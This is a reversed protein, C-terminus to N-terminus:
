SVASFLSSSASKVHVLRGPLFTLWPALGNFLNGSIKSRYLFEGIFIFLPLTMMVSSNTENWLINNLIGLASSSTFFMISIIGIIILSVGVWITSGLLFILLGLITLSIAM